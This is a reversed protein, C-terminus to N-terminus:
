VAAGTRGCSRLRRGVSGSGCFCDLVTEGPDSSQAILQKLVAVPKETPYGRPRSARLVDGRNRSNGRRSGKSFFCIFEHQPRWVGHGPGISGKDWVLAQHVDFGAAEGAEEFIPRIRRDAFVYAHANESSSGTSSPLSKLGPRMPSCRSGSASFGEARDFEYPPIPVILDVSEAPLSALFERADAEVLRVLGRKAGEGKRRRYAVSVAPRKATSSRGEGRRSASSVNAFRCLAGHPAGHAAAAEAKAGAEGDARRYTPARASLLGDQPSM